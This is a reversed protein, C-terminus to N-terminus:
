DDDDFKEFKIKEPEDTEGNIYLYLNNNSLLIFSFPVNSIERYLRMFLKPNIGVCTSFDQRQSKIDFQNNLKYCVRMNLNNRILTPINTPSQTIFFMNYGYNRLMCASMVTCKTFANSGNNVRGQNFDDFIIVGWTDKKKKEIMEGITEQAELPNASFYYEIKNDKCYNEISDYVPNGVILSCVLIQSVNYISDLISLLFTSKGTGTGGTISCLIHSNPLYKSKHKVKYPEPPIIQRGGFMSKGYKAKKDM